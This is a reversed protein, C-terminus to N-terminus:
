QNRFLHGFSRSVELQEPHRKLSVRQKGTDDRTVAAIEGVNV